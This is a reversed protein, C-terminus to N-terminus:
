RIFECEWIGNITLPQDANASGVFKNIVLKYNGSQIDSIPIAITANGDIVEAMDTLKGEKIVKDSTDIIKYNEIGFTEFSIYPANKQNVFTSSVILENPKTTVSVDIEDNAQEYSTGTIAGIPNKIDKFLGKLKGTTALATGGALCLCLSLSVVAVIPRNFLYNIKNKSMANKDMEIRCKRIIQEKIEQPMEVEKFKELSKKIKM